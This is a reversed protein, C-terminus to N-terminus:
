DGLIGKSLDEGPTEYDEGRMVWGTQLYHSIEVQQDNTSADPYKIRVVCFISKKEILAAMLKEHVPSQKPTYGYLMQSHDKNYLKYAQHTESSPFDLNPYVTPEAIFRFLTPKTPKTSKFTSLPMECYGVYSEWDVLYGTPTKELSITFREYQKTELATVVFNKHAFLDDFRPMSNYDVPQFKAQEQYYADMLPHVREPDRVLPKIEASSKADMFAKLTPTLEQLLSSKPRMELGNSKAKPAPPQTPSEVIPGEGIHERKRMKVIKYTVGALGILILIILGWPLKALARKWARWSTPVTKEGGEDWALNRHRMESRSIRKRKLPPPDNPGQVMDPDTTRALRDKFDIERMEPAKREWSERETRLKLADPNFSRNTPLASASPPEPVQDEPFIADAAVGPPPESVTTTLPERCKPCLARANGVTKPLKALNGCHKCTIINWTSIAM